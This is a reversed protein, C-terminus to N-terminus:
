PVDVRGHWDSNTKIALMEKRSPCTVSKSQEIVSEVHIKRWISDIWALDRYPSRQGPRMDRGTSGLDLYYWTITKLTVIIM